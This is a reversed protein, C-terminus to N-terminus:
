ASPTGFYQRTLWCRKYDVVVRVITSNKWVLMNGHPLFGISGFMKREEIGKKRVLGHRIREARAENFAM